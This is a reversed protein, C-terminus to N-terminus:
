ALIYSVSKLNFELMLPCISPDMSSSRAGTSEGAYLETYLKGFLSLRTANYLLM